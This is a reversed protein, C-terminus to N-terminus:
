RCSKSMKTGGWTVMGQALLNFTPEDFSVLGMDRLSKGFFRFYMLHMIAPESGVIYQDVPTWYDVKDKM